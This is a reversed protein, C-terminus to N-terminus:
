WDSKPRQSAPRNRVRRRKSMEEKALQLPSVLPTIDFASLVALQNLMRLVQLLASLSAAQGKELLVLTSRSIGAEHALQAQTKNQEIRKTRVFTGIHLALAGDSMANWNRYANNNEM